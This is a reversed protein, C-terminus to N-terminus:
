YWRVQIESISALEESLLEFLNTNKKDLWEQSSEQFQFHHAGSIPSSIWLEQLHSNKNVAYQGSSTEITLIGEEYEVDIAGNNDSREISDSIHIITKEALSNFNM